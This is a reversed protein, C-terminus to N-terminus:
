CQAQPPGSCSPFAPLRGQFQESAICHAIMDRSMARLLLDQRSDFWNGANKM